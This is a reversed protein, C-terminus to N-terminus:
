LRGFVPTTGFTCLGGALYILPLQDETLGVNAVMSPALFPVICAGAFVLMGSMLLARVHVPQTVINRMQDWPHAPPHAHHLVPLVRLGLAFVLVSLGSLLYFPAHWEFRGALFLGFPVGLVSALPFAAGVVAMGRGRRAAPIVDGVMAFLVSSAVGGFAGAAARAAMLTGYTPALACALTALGFGAYLTLLARKREIRDLFFGAGFGCVAATLGYAAVLHSFQEPSIAFVRMLHSGLPMMIMFDMIHTFQVVALTLLIARERTPTQAHTSM